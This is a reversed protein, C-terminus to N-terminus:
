SATCFTQALLLFGRLCFSFFKQLFKQQQWTNMKYLLHSLISIFHFLSWRGSYKHFPFFLWETLTSEITVQVCYFSNPEKRAKKLKGHVYGRYKSTDLIHLKKKLVIYLMYTGFLVQKFYKNRSINENAQMISALTLRQHLIRRAVWPGCLVKNQIKELKEVSFDICLWKCCSLSCHFLCNM